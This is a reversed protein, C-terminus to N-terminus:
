IVDPVNRYMKVKLGTAAVDGAGAGVTMGTSVGAVSTGAISSSIVRELAELDPPIPQLAANEITTNV